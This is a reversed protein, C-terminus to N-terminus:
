KEAGALLGVVADADVSAKEDALQATPVLGAAAAVFRVAGAADDRAGGLKRLKATAWARVADASAAPVAGVIVGGDLGLGSKARKALYRFLLFGALGAARHGEAAPALPLAAPKAAAAAVAAARAAVFAALIKEIETDKLRRLRGVVVVDIPAAAFAAAVSDFQARTVSLNAARAAQGFAPYLRHWALQKAVAKACDVVAAGTAATAAVIQIEGRLVFVDLAAARANSDTGVVADRLGRAAAAALLGAAETDSAAARASSGAQALGALGALGAAFAARSAAVAVGVVIRAGNRVSASPRVRVQVRDKAVSVSAFDSM